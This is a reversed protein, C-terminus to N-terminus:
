RTGTLRDDEAARLMKQAGRRVRDVAEGLHQAIHFKDFVIKRDADALNARVSNVYPDWMDMAVAQISARQPETLTPWFQVLSAQTRDEAVYLV